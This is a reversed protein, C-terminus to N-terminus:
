SRKVFETAIGVSVCDRGGERAGRLTWHLEAVAERM